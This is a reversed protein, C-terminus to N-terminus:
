KRHPTDTPEENPPLADTPDLETKKRHLNRLKRLPTFQNLRKKLLSAKNSTAQWIERANDNLGKNTVLTDLGEHRIVVADKGLTIINEIHIRVRGSFFGEIRGSSVELEVISGTEPDVFYEDILGLAKGKDTVARLGVISIKEKILDIINPLNATKEAQSSTSVTIADEGISAIRNFPIIRQDQFFGQPDVVLAAISQTKANVILSRVHGVRRGEQLSFIPLSLIKRSAFM